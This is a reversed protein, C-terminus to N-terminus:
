RGARLCTGEVCSGEPCRAADASVPMPENTVTNIYTTPSLCSLTTVLEDTYDPLMDGTIVRQVCVGEICEGADCTIVSERCAATLGMRYFLTEGAVVPLVTERVVVETAGRFGSLTLTVTASDDAVIAFSGPLVDQRPDWEADVLPVGAPGGTFFIRDVMDTPMDTAIGVMLETRDKCGASAMVACTVVIAAGRM